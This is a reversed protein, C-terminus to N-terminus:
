PSSTSAMAMTCRHREIPVLPWGFQPALIQEEFATEFADNHAAVLWDTNREAEVFEAPVPDGRFWLKIPGDDVVYACCWPATTPHAAYLRAGVKKLNLVSKSEIDRHLVPMAYGGFLLPLFPPGKAPGSRARPEIRSETEAWITTVGRTM